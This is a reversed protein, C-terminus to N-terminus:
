NQPIAGKRPIAGPRVVRRQDQGCELAGDGHLAGRDARHMVRITAAGIRAVVVLGRHRCARHRGAHAPLIVAPVTGDGLADEGRELPLQQSVASQGRPRHRRARQHREDLVPVIRLPRM